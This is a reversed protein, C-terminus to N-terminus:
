PDYASAKGIFAGDNARIIDDRSPGSTLPKNSKGDPGMSYLDFDSNIPHFNHDKRADNENGPRDYLRLYQYPHGWPDVMPLGAKATFAGLDDPLADPNEMAIAKLKDSILQLDATTESEKSQEFYAQMKSGGLAALIGLISICIILEIFTFGSDVRFKRGTGPSTKAM